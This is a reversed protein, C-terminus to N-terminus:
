SDFFGKIGNFIGLAAKKIGLDSNLFKEEGANSVFAVEALTAPMNTHKLVYFNCSRTGRDDTGLQALIGTRVTDALRKSAVTGKVYYYTSTGKAEGSSFSDMHICVFVDSKSNNAVDCRAQLEEIDNAATHKSSVETDTTRTMFVKAGAAELIRQLEKSIRLTISKETVGTPGIAGSDEGGHGPDITIKKGSLGPTYVPEEGLTGMDAEEEPISSAATAPETAAPEQVPLKIKAGSSGKELNGFDLVVRYPSAGGTLSFVDYNNKGVSTEVVIRVTNKDFQGVRIKKAFRSDIDTARAVNPSLWAESLNVVVRTPNSLVITEYGVEGTTDVVIRVKDGNVHVRIGKVEAKGAVSNDLSAAEAMTPSLFMSWIMFFCIFFRIM